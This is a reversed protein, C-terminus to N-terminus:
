FVLSDIVIALFMIGLYPFSSIKYAKWSYDRDTKFLTLIV